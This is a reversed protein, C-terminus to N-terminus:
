SDAGMAEAARAALADLVATHRDDVGAELSLAGATATLTFTFFSCCGTEHAALEAARGAIEPDARLVMQVREPGARRVETVAEAFFTDFAAMRLPQEVTPLTCATPVWDQGAGAQELGM